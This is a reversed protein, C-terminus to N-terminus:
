RARPSRRFRDGDDARLLVQAQQDGAAQGIRAGGAGITFDTAPPSSTCDRSLATTSSMVSLTTVLRAGVLASSGIQGKREADGLVHLRVGDDIGLIAGGDADAGALHAADIGGADGRALGLIRGRRRAQRCREGAARDDGGVGEERKGVAKQDRDLGAGGGHDLGAARHAVVLHDLGGVVVADGHHEGARPMEPM